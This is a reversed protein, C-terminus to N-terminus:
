QTNTHGRKYVPYGKEHSTCERSHIHYGCQTVFTGANQKCIEWQKEMLQGEIREGGHQKTSGKTYM